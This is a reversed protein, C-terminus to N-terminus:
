PGIREEERSYPIVLGAESFAELLNIRVGDLRALATDSINCVQISRCESAHDAQIQALDGCGEVIATSFQGAPLQSLNRSNCPGETFSTQNWRAPSDASEMVEIRDLMWPAIQSPVLVSSSILQSDRLADAANRDEFSQRTTEVWGPAFIALPIAAVVVVILVVTLMSPNRLERRFRAQLSEKQPASVPPNAM